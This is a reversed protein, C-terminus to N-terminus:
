SSEAAAAARRPWTALQHVNAVQADFCAPRVIRFSSRWRLRSAANRDDGATARAALSTVVCALRNPAFIGTPSKGAATQRATSGAAASFRALAAIARPLRRPEFLDAALEGTEVDFAAQIRGDVRGVESPEHLPECRALWRVALAVQALRESPVVPRAEFDIRCRARLQDQEGVELNAEMLLGTELGLDRRCEVRGDHIWAVHPIADDLGQERIGFPENPQAEQDGSQEPSARQKIDGDVRENDLLLPEDAVDQSAVQHGELEPGGDAKLEALIETGNKWGRKPLDDEGLEAIEKIPDIRRTVAWPFGSSDVPGIEGIAHM